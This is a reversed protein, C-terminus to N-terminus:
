SFHAFCIPMSMTFFASAATAADRLPQDARPPALAAGGCKRDSGAAAAWGGKVAEWPKAGIDSGFVPGSEPGCESM